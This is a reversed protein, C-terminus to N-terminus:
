GPSRWERTAFKVGAEYRGRHWLTKGVTSALTFLAKAPQSLEGVPRSLLAQSLFKLERDKKHGVLHAEGSLNRVSDAKQLPAPNDFFAGRLLDKIM